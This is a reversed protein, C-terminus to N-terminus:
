ETITLVKKIINYANLLVIFSNLHFTGGNDKAARKLPTALILFSLKWLIRRAFTHAVGVESSACSMM